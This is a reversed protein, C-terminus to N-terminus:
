PEHSRDSGTRDDNSYEVKCSAPKSEMRAWTGSFRFGALIVSKYFRSSSM